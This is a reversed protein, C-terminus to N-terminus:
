SIVPSHTLQILRRGSKSGGRKSERKEFGALAELASPRGTKSKEKELGAIRIELTAKVQRLEDIKSDRQLDKVRDSLELWLDKAEM